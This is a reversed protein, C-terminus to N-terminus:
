SRRQRRPFPRARCAAPAPFAPSRKLVQGTVFHWDGLFIRQLDAVVPGEVKFHLDVVPAAPGKEALVHRCGINMGGTFATCGDVVLIKRHNRLNIYAGQRLPLFRRIDVQSNELLRRATTRSYKEGLSDVIM